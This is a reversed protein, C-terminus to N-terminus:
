RLASAPAPRSLGGGCSGHHEAQAVRLSRIEVRAAESKDRACTRVQSPFEDNRASRIRHGPLLIIISSSSNLLASM